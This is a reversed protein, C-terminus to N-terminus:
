QVNSVNNNNKGKEKLVAKEKEARRVEGKGGRRNEESGWINKKSIM